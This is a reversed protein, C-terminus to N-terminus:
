HIRWSTRLSVPLLCSLHVLCSLHSSNSTEWQSIWNRLIPTVKVSAIIQIILFSGCLIILALIYWGEQHVFDRLKQFSFFLTLSSDVGPSFLELLDVFLMYRAPELRCSIFFPVLVDSAQSARLRPRLRPVICFSVQWRVALHSQRFRSCLIDMWYIQGFWLM